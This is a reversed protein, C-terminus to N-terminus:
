PQGGAEISCCYKSLRELRLNHQAVLETLWYPIRENVKIEMVALNAPLLSAGSPDDHLDLPALQYTLNTDFTIRLGIDYDTGILALRQYRVISAPVLDYLAIFVLAEEVLATDAPAHDPLQRELCLRLAERYPLAARRKQTVHDLRQKIEVMVPADDDLVTASGYLRIRLKRRYKLGDVKEWYCRHDPSDFYLSALQYSGAASGHEDPRLYASLATRLVEAQSLTLIYKLEFRNFSRIEHSLSNSM